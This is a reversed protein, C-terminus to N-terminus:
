FGNEKLIVEVEEETLKVLQALTGISIEAKFGNLIVDIKEQLIGKEIGKKMGEKVGQEKATEIRDKERAVGDLYKKYAQKEEAPMNIEKLKQEAKEINKSQSGAKIENNKFMYIWEDIAKQIVNQYKEVQILYYEPFIRKEEFTIKPSFDITNVVKEKVILPEGTNMGIFNTSGHYLYDDGRGLNFYLISVSIVKVVNKYPNGLRLNEVITKSAGYLLRELYDSERTNQVEIIFRRKQDDEVLIDVRNFKDTEEEQNSESDLLEIIRISNDELLACLFGELVDFNQKDRLLHKIAWDFRILQNNM